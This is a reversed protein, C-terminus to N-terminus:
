LFLIEVNGFNCNGELTLARPVMNSGQYRNPINVAGMSSHISNIVQWNGPVYLKVSGFSCDVTAVAGEPAVQAQDFYVQLEGFSATLHVTQLNQSRLFRSNSSFSVKVSVNDLDGGDVTEGHPRGAHDGAQYPNYYNQQGVQPPIKEHWRLRRPLLLSLAITIMVAALMLIWFDIVPLGLPEDFIWYLLGLPIVVGPINLHVLSQIIFAACLFGGLWSYIGIDTFDHTRTALMFIATLLLFVGWLISSKKRTTM